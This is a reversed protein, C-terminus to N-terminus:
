TGTMGRVWVDQRIMHIAQAAARRVHWAPDRLRETLAPIASEAEAGLRGLLRAVSTRVHYDPDRLTSILAVMCQTPEPRYQPNHMLAITLRRVRPDPSALLDIVQTKAWGPDRPCLKEIMASAAVRIGPYPDKLLERVRPVAIKAHTGFRLLERMAKQRLRPDRDYLQDVLRPLRFMFRPTEIEIDGGGGGAAAAFCGVIAVADIALAVPLAILAAVGRRGKPKGKDLRIGGLFVWRNLTPHHGFICAIPGHEDYARAVGYPPEWYLRWGMMVREFDLELLPAGAPLERELRSVDTAPVDVQEIDSGWISGIRPRNTWDAPLTLAYMGDPRETSNRVHFAVIASGDPATHIGAASTRPIDEGAWGLLGYTAFCGSSGAGAAMLVAVCIPSVATVGPATTARM